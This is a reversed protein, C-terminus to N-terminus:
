PKSVPHEAPPRRRCAVRADFQTTRGWLGRRYRIADNEYPLLNTDAAYELCVWAGGRQVLELNVDLEGVKVRGFVRAPGDHGTITARVIQNLVLNSLLTTSSPAYYESGQPAGIDALRVETEGTTSAVVLTDGNPVRVVKGIIDDAAQASLVICLAAFAAGVRGCNWQRRMHCPLTM